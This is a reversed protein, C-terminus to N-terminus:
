GGRMDFRILLAGQLPELHLVRVHDLLERLGRDELLRALDIFALDGEVRMGPPTANFLAVMPGALAALAGLGPLRWRLVLVPSRPLDPQREIRAAVTIAPAFAPRRLHLRASVEGYAVHIEASEIPGDPKRRLAEAVARNLVNDTLPIEGGLHAGALEEFRPGLLQRLSTM